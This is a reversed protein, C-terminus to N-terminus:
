KLNTQWITRVPTRKCIEGSKTLNDCTYWMCPLKGPMGINVVSMERVVGEGTHDKIKDGIKVTNNSRAFEEDLIKLMAKKKSLYEEETMGM